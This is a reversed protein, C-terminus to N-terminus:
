RNLYKGIKGKRTFSAIKQIKEGKHFKISAWCETLMELEERRELILFGLWVFMARARRSFVVILANWYICLSHTVPAQLSLEVEPPAICFVALPM